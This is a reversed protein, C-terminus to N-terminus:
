GAKVDDNLCFTPRSDGGGEPFTNSYSFDSMPSTLVRDKLTVRGKQQAPARVSTKLDRRSELAVSPGAMAANLQIDEQDLLPIHM